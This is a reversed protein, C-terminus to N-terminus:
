DDLIDGEMQDLMIKKRKMAEIKTCQEGSVVINLNENNYENCYRCTTVYPKEILFIIKKRIEDISLINRVDVFDTSDFTKILGIDIAHASKPCIHIRGNLLSFFRNPCHDFNEKLATHKLDNKSLQGKDRWEVNRTEFMIRNIKLQDELKQLNRSISKYNSISVKIKSTSKMVEILDDDFLLTGNTVILINDVKKSHILLKLISLLAPSLLPEGGLIRVCGIKDISLLVKELDSIINDETVHYPKEYYQILNACNKCKLTCYTTIPVEFCPLYIKKNILAIFKSFHNGYKDKLYLYRLESLRCKM